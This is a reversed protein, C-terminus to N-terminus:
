RTGARAREGATAAATAPASRSGRRRRLSRSPCDSRRRALERRRRARDHHGHVVPEAHEAEERQGSEAGLRGVARRAVEAQEVLLGRHAPHLAVDAPEAAIRAVHRDGALRRATVRHAQVQRRRGRLPQEVARDDVAAREVQEAGAAGALRARGDRQGLGLGRRSAERRVRRARVGRRLDGAQARLRGLLEQGRARAEGRLGVRAALEQGHRHELRDGDPSQFRTGTM